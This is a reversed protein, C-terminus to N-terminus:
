GLQEPGAYPQRSRLGDVHESARAGICSSGAPGARQQDPGDHGKLCKQGAIKLGVQCKVNIATWFSPWGKRVDRLGDGAQSFSM